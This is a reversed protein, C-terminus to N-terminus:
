RDRKIDKFLKDRNLVGLPHTSFGYERLVVHNAYMFHYYKLITM